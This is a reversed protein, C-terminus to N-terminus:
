LLNVFNAVGDPRNVRSRNGNPIDTAGSIKCACRFVAMEPRGPTPVITSMNIQPSPLHVLFHFIVMIFIQYSQWFPTALDANFKADVLEAKTFLLNSINTM